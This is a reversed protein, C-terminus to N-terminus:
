HSIFFLSNLVARRMENYRPNSTVRFTWFEQPNAKSRLQSEENRFFGLGDLSQPVEEDPPLSGWLRRFM